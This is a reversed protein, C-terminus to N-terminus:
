NRGASSWSRVWSVASTEIGLRRWIVAWIIANMSIMAVMQALALGTATAAGGAMWVVLLVAVFLALGSLRAMLAQGELHCQAAVMFNLGFLVSGLNAAALLALAMWAGPGPTMDFLPLWIDMGALVAIALGTAVAATLGLARHCAAQIREMAGTAYHGAIPVSFRDNAIVQPFSIFNAVRKLIVYLGVHEPQLLASAALVDANAVLAGLLGNAWFSTQFMTERPASRRFRVPGFATIALVLGALVAAVIGLFLLYVGTVDPTGWLVLILTAAVAGAHHLGDRVLMIAVTGFAVRAFVAAAQVLSILFATGAIIWFVHDVGALAPFLGLSDMLVQVGAAYVLALGAPALVVWILFGPLHIQDQGKALGAPVTRLLRKSVGLSVFTGGFMMLAWITAFRGFEGAGLRNSIVFAALLAASVVFGRTLYLFVAKM